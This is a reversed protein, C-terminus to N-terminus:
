QPEGDQGDPLREEGVGGDKGGGGRAGARSAAGLRANGYQGGGEGHGVAIESDQDGPAGKLAHDIMGLAGIYTM